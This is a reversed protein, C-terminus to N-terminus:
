YKHPKPPEKGLFNQCRFLFAAKCTKSGCRYLPYMGAFEVQAFYSRLQQEIQDPNVSAIRPYNEVVVFYGTRNPQEEALGPWFSFQNLRAGQLNLFYARKQQPGYFSLLSTTQYKDSFLFNESPNYGAQELAPSLERWGVNHKFPNVKYAGPLFPLVFASIVMLIALFLGAWAWRMHDYRSVSWGVLVFSVPYLFSCWNGQMKMFVAALCFGLLVLMTSAAIFLLGQSVHRREKWVFFLAIFGLLFLLPSVLLVQAGFFELLNGKMLGTTGVEQGHGGIVTTGVHRFTVWDHSINWYLSPALGLLSVLIGGLLHKSKLRPFFPLFLLILVWLLYIHWKFLAGALICLGVWYYAPTKERSLAYTILGVAVTWFLALGVDTIAFFSSVVGIPSLAFAIAAVWSGRTSVQCARATGYVAWGILFALVVSGFRVGLETSGFLRTGTWIQWAIGPPKSYYGPALQQSWTWYQAEDPGLGIGAWLILAILALAKLCLIATLNYFSYTM